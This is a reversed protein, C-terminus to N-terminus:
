GWSQQLSHTKLISSLHASPSAPLFGRRSLWPGAGPAQPPSHAGPPRRGQGRGTRHPSLQPQVGVGWLASGGM